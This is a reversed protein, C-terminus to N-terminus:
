RAGLRVTWVTTLTGGMRGRAWGVGILRFSGSEVLARHTPSHRWGFAIPGTDLRWGRRRAILEAVRRFGNGAGLDAAHEFRDTEVQRRSQRRAAASLRRDARLPDLGVRAREHNLRQILQGAPGAKAAAPFAAALV